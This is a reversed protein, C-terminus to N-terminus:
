LRARRQRRGLFAYTATVEDNNTSILRIGRKWTRNVFVSSQVGVRYTRANAGDHDSITVAQSTIGPSLSIVAVEVLEDYAFGLAPAAGEPTFLTM